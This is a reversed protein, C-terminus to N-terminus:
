QSRVSLNHYKSIILLIFRTVMLHIQTKIMTNESLHETVVYTNMAPPCAFTGCQATRPAISWGAGIVRGVTHFNDSFMKKSHSKPAFILGMHM